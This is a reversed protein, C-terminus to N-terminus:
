RPKGKRLVFRKLLNRVCYEQYILTTRHMGLARAAEPQDLQQIFRADFVKRWKDPLCETRFRDITIQAEVAMARLRYTVYNPAEIGTLIGIIGVVCALELLTFGGRGRLSMPASM